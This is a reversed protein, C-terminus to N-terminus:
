RSVRLGEGYRVPELNTDMPPRRNFYWQKGAKLADDSLSFPGRMNAILVLRAALHDLVQDTDKPYQVEWFQRNFDRKGIVTVVRASFGTLFADITLSEVLWRPVSGALWNICPPEKIHVRGHTRTGEDIRFYGMYLHTMTKIFNKAITGTGICDALEETILYLCPKPYFKEHTFEDEQPKGLQDLIDKYTTPGIHDRIGTGSLDMLDVAKKIAFGKGATGHGILFTYLNPFMKNRDKGLWVKNELTAAILSIVAWLHFHAPTEGEGQAHLYLYIFNKAQELASRNPDRIPSIIEVTM